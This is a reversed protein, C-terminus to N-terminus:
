LDRVDFLVRRARWDAIALWIERARVDRASKSPCNQPLWRGLWDMWIGNDGGDCGLRFSQGSEGLAAGIRYHWDTDSRRGDHAHGIQIFARQPWRQAGDARSQARAAPSDGAARVCSGNGAGDAGGDGRSLEFLQIRAALPFRRAVM